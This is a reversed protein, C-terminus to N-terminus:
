WRAWASAPRNLVVRYGRIIGDDRLRQMRRACATASLGVKAGLDTVSQRADELLLPHHAPRASRAARCQNEEGLLAGRLNGAGPYRWAAIKAAKDRRASQTHDRAPCLPRPAM